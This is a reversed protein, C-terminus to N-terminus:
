VAEIGSTKAVLDRGDELTPKPDKIRKKTKSFDIQADVKTEISTRARALQLVKDVTSEEMVEAYDQKFRRMEFVWWIGWGILTVATLPITTAWYVWFLKSLVNGNGSGSGGPGSGYSDGSHPWQFMTTSFLSSVFSGPLYIASIFALIKMSTSDQGASVALRASLRNDMQAVMNYLVDLQLTMREKMTAVQSGVSEATALNYELMEKLADHESFDLQMPLFQYLDDLLHRMSSSCGLNWQPSCATFLVRLSQANIRKSLKEVKGRGISGTESLPRQTHRNSQRSRRKDRRFPFSASDTLKQPEISANTGLTEQAKNARGEYTVGLEGEIAWTEQLLKGSSCFGKTRQIHDTLLLTPLLLPHNWASVAGEILRVLDARYRRDVDSVIYQGFDSNPEPGLYHQASARQQVERAADSIAINPDITPSLVHRSADNDFSPVDTGYLLATTLRTKVDYSLSM